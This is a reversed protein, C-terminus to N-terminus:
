ILALSTTVLSHKAICLRYGAVYQPECTAERRGLMLLQPIMCQARIDQLLNTCPLHHGRNYCPALCVKIVGPLNQFRRMYSPYVETAIKSM